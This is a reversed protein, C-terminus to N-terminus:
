RIGYKQEASKKRQKAKLARREQIQLKVYQKYAKNQQKEIANMKERYRFQLTSITKEMLENRQVMLFALVEFDTIESFAEDFDHIIKKMLESLLVDNEGYLLEEYYEFDQEISSQPEQSLFRCDRFIIANIKEVIKQGLM